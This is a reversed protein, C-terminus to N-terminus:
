PGFNTGCNQNLYDRILPWTNRLPTGIIAGNTVATGTFGLMARVLMLGDTVANPAGGSGDIDLGALQGDIANAIAVDGTQLGGPNVANATLAPGSMGLMRRLILLGDTTARVTSDLDIDLNCMVANALNPSFRAVFADNGTSKASQAGGVTGPLTTSSTEGAVYVEGSGPHIALAYAVDAGTGGLYSSQPRLTLAANFRTVFADYGGGTASQAGAAVGGSAVTVGPLNTSSTDGAVYVEGSAPHISLARAIDTGTGGLYSSQLITTLAANLRTVFADTDGGSASQAGAAVGGSAVTVGPLDSSSTQGAVYVEGSAPHITLAIAWDGGTGGLYSSQPRTTLAANFRTVFADLGGGTASQAGTAVGGLAVTVGPLNTSLTYGAIYIEGSAPHIALASPEDISGGGHYSSQLLTTLAANLRTVFADDSTSKVSQAGTAVGGLAVTVGPLDSSGTVGAIYIEGSAPHIALANASDTGTGGLYSSQLRVTLAANFRTVFADRGGGTGSQAGLAVGPLDSSETYGAVYVEGSASHIALANAQDAGSGGLYSSQLRVTLAANFRAVYADRGGGGIVSQAGVAVGGGAVTVGPLDTSDTSGAVYVEGSSPHIAVAYAVDYGTGGHYSSQLLPDIVLPQNVDYRGLQFRYRQQDADLLYAVQVATREGNATEQFAIPATFAVPGNGTHAILEGQTGIELKDAGKIRIHIQEPDHKPAVTFIKEVNNGTARLQVNVGPYMDGLNVREYTNLNDAHKHPDNGIAYSVKGEMPRFGSPSKLTSQSMARPQGKADILTETLVWGPTRHQPRKQKDVARVGVRERAVPSPPSDSEESDANAAIPKGPLSYVLQGEKTVFLTGAFTQAAFAARSDWQGANPVFPVSLKAIRNLTAPDPANFYKPQAAFPTTGIALVSLAAM